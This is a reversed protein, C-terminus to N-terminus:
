HFTDAIHGMAKHALKLFSYADFILFFFFCDYFGLIIFLRGKRVSLGGYTGLWGHAGTDQEEVEFRKWVQNGAATEGLVIKGRQNAQFGM